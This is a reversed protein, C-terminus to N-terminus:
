AAAPYRAGLRFPLETADADCIGYRGFEHRLTEELTPYAFQFGTAELRAPIVQQSVLILDDALEGAVLRMAAAPVRMLTPRNLVKGMTRTFEGNTITQPAVANVPGELQDNTIAEFLIGVLDDLAIWAMHQRGNGLQGGTGTRFVHGLLPLMGGEGAFIVGFRPHVVRIGADAAPLAAHEWARCVSALFGDGSPSEETLAVDGGDGYYGVASTSVFVKPPHHLGALTTALLHTGDLRSDIIATKRARTWRGSAISVGALHIIADMSELAAEDIEGSAPNWFIEDSVRPQHRVLRFVQHGGTRLFPVLRSGVLGSAGSVVIRLPANLGSAAHRAVDVQTRRHRFRFLDELRSRIREGAVPNTLTNFPLSYTLRDEIVSTGDAAPEFRHEHRWSQFPGHKQIDVFGDGDDLNDHILDWNFGLPGLLPVRLSVTAGPDIGGSSTTVKATM